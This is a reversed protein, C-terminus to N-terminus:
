AGDPAIRLIDALGTEAGNGMRARRRFGMDKCIDSAPEPAAPLRRGTRSRGAPWQWLARRCPSSPQGCLSEARM